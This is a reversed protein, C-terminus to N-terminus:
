SASVQGTARDQVIINASNAGLSYAGSAVKTIVKSLFKRQAQSATVYNGVVIRDVRSWDASACVALHTIIDTESKANLRPRHCLPCSKINVVREMTDGPSDTKAEESESEARSMSPSVSSSKTNKPTADSASGAHLPRVNIDGNPSDDNDSRPASAEIQKALEDANLPLPLPPVPGATGLGEGAPKPAISYDAPTQIDPSTDGDLDVRNKEDATKKIERELCIIVEEITLEDSEPSKDFSRFYSEITPQTLTSSLSDLMTTLEMYSMTGTDDSDYQACYQRWFRQRLADYPEYKARLLLKPSHKAEWGTDKATVIPLQSCGLDPASGPPDTLFISVKYDKMEHKGDENADYLGTEPDPKPAEAVLESLPITNSGIFDNGSVKDWDLVSFHLSFADEFRRVHFLL